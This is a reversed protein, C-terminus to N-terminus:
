DEQPKHLDFYDMVREQVVEALKERGIGWRIATEVQEKIIKPVIEKISNAVIAEFNEATLFKDLEEQIIKEQNKLSDVLMAHIQKKVSEFNLSLIPLESM